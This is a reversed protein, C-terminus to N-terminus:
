FPKRPFELMGSRTPALPSQVPPLVVPALSSPASPSGRPQDILSPLSSSPNPLGGAPSILPSTPAGPTVSRTGYGAPIVPNLAELTSDPGFTSPFSGGAPGVLPARMAPSDLFQRFNESRDQMRRVETSFDLRPGFPSNVLGLSVPVAGPIPTVAGTTMGPLRVSANAPAGIPQPSSTNSGQSSWLSTSTADVEGSREDLSGGTELLSRNTSGGLNIDLNQLHKEVAGKTDQGGDTAGESVGLLGKLDLMAGQSTFMWNKRRDQLQLWRETAARSPQSNQPSPSDFVPAVSTSRDISPRASPEGKSEQDPQQVVVRGPTTSFQIKNDAAEVLIATCGLSWAVASFATAARFGSTAIAMIM